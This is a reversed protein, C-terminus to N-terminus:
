PQGGFLAAHLMDLYHQLHHATGMHALAFDLLEAIPEPEVPGFHELWRRALPEDMVDPDLRDRLIDVFADDLAQRQELARRLEAEPDDCLTASREDVLHGLWDAVPAAPEVTAATPAEHGTSPAKARRHPQVEFPRVREVFRGQSWLEVEDTHEPDYRIEVKKRALAAPAQYKRGFLSLLGTKDPTRTETWLFARRLVEEDLHRVKDIATRWRDRPVEHTEGHPRRNYFRDVWAYFAANLAELSDIKSVKIEAIFAARCLRNFAEIKGHGQPRYPTTFVVRHIGLAAVVQQMHKSRYTSGNDYYVRAPVGHRRLAQRFCLELAPLDGKFSFRGALLLRSHDDLFAYLWARRQKAPNHPDPLWPGALMDSQWLQNPASAEFRDLDTVSAESRPRASLGRAQLVRHLTSRTLIGPEILKLEEAIMRIRDLSREPVEKKLQCVLEIQEPSLVKVGRCPRPRDELAALGGHRYRRIWARLTEATFHVEQGDPLRWTKAALAQRTAGRQGRKPDLALYASITQYRLLAM